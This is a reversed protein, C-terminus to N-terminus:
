KIHRVDHFHNSANIIRKRYGSQDDIGYSYISIEFAEKSHHELVGTFLHSTAHDHFDSSLYGIHIKKNISPTDFQYLKKRSESANKTKLAVQEVVKLLHKLDM